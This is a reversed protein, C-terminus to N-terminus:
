MYIIFSVQILYYIIGIPLIVSLFIPMSYSIVVMTSLTSFFINIWMRSTGPLLSDVTEVDRAFRNVIRGIPTTDFFSMPAKLVNTLMYEHLNGAARVQRLSALLSYVM